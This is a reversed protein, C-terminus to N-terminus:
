VSEFRYHQGEFGRSTRRHTECQEATKPRGYNIWSGQHTIVKLQYLAATSKQTMGLYYGCM